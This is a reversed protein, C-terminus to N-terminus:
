LFAVPRNGMSCHPGFFCWVMDLQADNSGLAKSLLHLTRGVCVADGTEQMLVVQFAGMCDAPIHSSSSFSMSFHLSAVSAVSRPYQGVISAYRFTLAWHPVVLPIFPSRWDWAFSPTQLCGIKSVGGLLTSLLSTAGEGIKTLCSPIHNALSDIFVNSARPNLFRQFHTPQLHSPM